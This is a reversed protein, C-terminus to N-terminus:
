GSLTFNTERTRKNDRRDTVETDRGGYSGFTGSGIVLASKM